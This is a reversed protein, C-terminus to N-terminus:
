TPNKKGTGPGARSLRELADARRYGVQPLSPLDCRHADSNRAQDVVSGADNADWRVQRAPVARRHLPREFPEGAQRHVAGVVRIRYGKALPQVARPAATPVQKAHREARADAAPYYRVAPEEGAGVVRGAFDAVSSDKSIPQRTRAAVAAADLAIDPGPVNLVPSPLSHTRLHLPELVM